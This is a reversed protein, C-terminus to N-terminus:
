GSGDDGGRVQVRGGDELDRAPAVVVRDEAALGELIEVESTTELGVQVATKHARGGNVRYVYAKGEEKFVAELPVHLAKPSEAVVIEVDVSMGPILGETPPEVRALGESISRSERVVVHPIVESVTGTWSRAPFANATIRVRQGAQVRGLDVQDINARVRLQELDAIWLIPDGAKVMEGKRRETRYVTGDFTSEVRASDRQAELERIRLDLSDVRLPVEKELYAVRERADRLAAQSEAQQERTIAAEAFLKDDTAAHQRIRVLASRAERLSEQAALRESRAKALEASVPGDDIRLAVDGAAVRAGPEPIEVIRGDLRARVEAEAFPEVSGNTVVRVALLGESVEAVAVPVAPSRALWWLLVAAM